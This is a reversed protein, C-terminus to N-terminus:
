HFMCNIWLIGGFFKISNIYKVLENFSYDINKIKEIDLRM